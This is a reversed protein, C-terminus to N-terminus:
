KAKSKLLAGWAALENSYIEQAIMTLDLETQHVRGDL